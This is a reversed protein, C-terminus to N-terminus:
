FAQLELLGPAYRALLKKARSRYNDHTRALWMPADRCMGDLQNIARRTCRGLARPGLARGISSTHPRAARRRRVDRREWNPEDPSGPPSPREAADLEM